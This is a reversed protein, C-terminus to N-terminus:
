FHFPESHGRTDKAGNTRLVRGPTGGSVLISALPWGLVGFHLDLPVGFRGFHEGITGRLGGRGCWVHCFGVAFDPFTLETEFNSFVSGRLGSHLCGSAATHAPPTM